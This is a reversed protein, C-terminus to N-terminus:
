KYYIEISDDKRLAEDYYSLYYESPRYLDLFEKFAKNFSKRKISIHAVKACDKFSQIVKYYEMQRGFPLDAYHAPIGSIKLKIHVNYGKLIFFRIGFLQIPNKRVFKM